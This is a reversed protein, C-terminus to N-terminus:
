RYNGIEDDFITGTPKEIRQQQLNSVTKNLKEIFKQNKTKNIERFNVYNNNISRTIFRWTFDNFNLETKIFYREDTTLSNNDANYFSIIGGTNANYMLLRSYGIVTDVNEDNKMSDIYGIPVNLYYFESSDNIRYISQSPVLRDNNIDRKDPTLIKSNNNTFLRNRSLSTFTDYFDLIYFSNRVALNTSNINGTFGLQNLSNEYTNTESDHFSVRIEIEGNNIYKFRRVEDDNVPNVLDLVNFETLKDIEQQYGTFDNSNSLPIRINIDGNNLKIRKKILM